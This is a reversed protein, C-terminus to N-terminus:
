RNLRLTITTGKGLISVIDLCNPDNLFTKLRQYVNSIGIGTTHGEAEPTPSYGYQTKKLKDLISSEIGNGNDAISIYVYDTDLSTKINIRGVDEKDKFGHILANEILPQLILPPMETHYAEKPLEINFDLLDDFRVEMLKFYNKVNKIEDKLTVTNEMSQINYRFIATLSYLFDSTKEADELNALQVGANLTNFLFHPNIQSQLATLEAHKLLNQMKLNKIESERLKNETEAMNKLESIYNKISVAMNSFTEALLTAEDYYTTKNLPFEYIGKSILGAYDSLEKIPKSINKKFDYAFIISLLIMTGTMIFIVHKLNEIRESLITYETLNSSFESANIDAIISDIYTSITKLDEFSELYKETNRGRKYGIAQSAKSLYEGLMNNINAIKLTTIDYSIETPQSERFGNIETQKNLYAVFSDSDKTNLYEEVSIEFDNMTKILENLVLSRNFILNFNNKISISTYLISFYSILICALLMFTFGSVKSSITNRWFLNKM